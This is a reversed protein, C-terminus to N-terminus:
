HEHDDITSKEAVVQTIWKQLWTRKIYVAVIKIDEEQQQQSYLKGNANCDEYINRMKAKNQSIGGKLAQRQQSMM